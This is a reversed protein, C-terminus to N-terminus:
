KGIILDVNDDNSGGASVIKLIIQNPLCAATEGVMSLRGTRVCVKDPCDSKEFCISGDKYLHFVVNRNQRISFIRETGRDLPVTEALRFKYYIEAKASKGGFVAKYGFLFLVGLAIIVMIVAFDSKKYFIM